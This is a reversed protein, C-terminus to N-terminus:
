GEKKPRLRLRLDEGVRVSDEIVFGPAASLIDLQPLEVLPMAQPGLLKPAMYILLEDVLSERLFAGALKAGAELLVENCELQALRELVAVLDLQNGTAAIDEVQAGRDVLQARSSARADGARGAVGPAGAVGAAVPVGAAGAAAATFILVKGGTTFLRADPSTRLRADLVVRLPQRRKEGPLRVDLRPDDAALTGAGIMVVSSRARWLQVDHRAAEGTIWQSAGNALATRGDLSMALKLRVFPRGVRMRKIFGVNLEGAEAEMLGSEVQIGAARLAAAGGGSVKPNPDGVAFVVRAVRAAILANACPPTRGYHSCPELTVYVTAGAADGAGRAEGVGSLGLKADVKGARPPGPGTGAARGESVSRLAAVEAHAEGAREHWGEGIIQSDRAIVCGVRPNPDTSDMGRAALELARAM